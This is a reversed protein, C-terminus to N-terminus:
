LNKSTKKADACAVGWKTIKFQQRFDQTSMGKVSMKRILGM